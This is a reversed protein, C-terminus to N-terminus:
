PSRGSRAAVGVILAPARPLFPMFATLTSPEAMSATLFTIASSAAAAALFVPLTGGRDCFAARTSARLSSPAAATARRSAIAEASEGGASGGAIHWTNRWGNAHAGLDFTPRVEDLESVLGTHYTVSATPLASTLHEARREHQSRAVCRRVVACGCQVREGLREHGLAGAHLAERGLEVELLSLLPFLEPTLRLLAGVQLALDLADLELQGLQARGPSLALGLQGARGLDLVRELREQGCLQHGELGADLRPDRELPGLSGCRELGEARARKKLRSLKLATLEARLAVEEQEVNIRAAEEEAARIRAEEEQARIRAVEEQEATIRAAAEEEAAKVRADEEQEARVRAEEEQEANTRTAEESTEEMTEEPTGDLPQLRAAERPPDGADEDDSSDEEESAAGGGDGFLGM